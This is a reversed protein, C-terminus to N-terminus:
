KVEKGMKKKEVDKVLTAEANLDGELLIPAAVNKAEKRERVRVKIQQWIIKIPVAFDMGMDGMMNAVLVEEADVQPEMSPLDDGAVGEIFLEHNDEDLVDDECSALHKMMMILEEKVVRRYSLTHM